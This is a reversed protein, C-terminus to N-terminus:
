PTAGGRKVCLTRLLRMSLLIGLASVVVSVDPRWIALPAMVGCVFVISAVDLALRVDRCKVSIGLRKM